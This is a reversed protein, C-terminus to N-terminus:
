IGMQEKIGVFDLRSVQQAVLHRLRRWVQVFNQTLDGAEAAEQRALAVSFGADIRDTQAQFIHMDSDSRHACWALQRDSSKHIVFHTQHGM